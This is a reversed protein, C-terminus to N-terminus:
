NEWFGAELDDKKVEVEETVTSIQHWNSSFFFMGSARAKGRTKGRQRKWIRQPQELCAPSYIVRLHCIHPTSIESLPHPIVFQSFPAFQIVYNSVSFKNIKVNECLSYIYNSFVQLSYQGDTNNRLRIRTYCSWVGSCTAKAVPASPVCVSKCASTIVVGHWTFRPGTHMLTRTWLDLISLIHHLDRKGWVPRRIRPADLKREYFSCLFRDHKNQLISLKNVDHCGIRRARM